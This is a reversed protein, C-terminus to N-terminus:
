AEKEKSLGGVKEEGTENEDLMKRCTGGFFLGFLNEWPGGWWM